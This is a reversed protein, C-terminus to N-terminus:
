FSINVGAMFSSVDEESAQTQNYGAKLTAADGIKYQAGLGLVLDMGDDDSSINGSGQTRIDIDTQWLFFGVRGYVGFRNTLPAIGKMALELGKVTVSADTVTDGALFSLDEKLADSAEFEGLSVFSAELAANDSLSSGFTLRFSSADEFDSDQPSSQGAEFGFYGSGSSGGSSDTSGSSLRVPMVGTRAPTATRNASEKTSSSSTSAKRQGPYPEAAAPIAVSLCLSILALKRLSSLLM